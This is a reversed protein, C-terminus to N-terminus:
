IPTSNFPMCILEFSVLASDKKRSFYAVYHFVMTLYLTFYQTMISLKDDHCRKLEIHISYKLNFPVLCNQLTKRFLSLFYGM